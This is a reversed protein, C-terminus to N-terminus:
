HHPTESFPSMKKKRIGVRILNGEIDFKFSILSLIMENETPISNFDAEITYVILEQSLMRKKAENIYKPDKKVCLLSDIKYWKNYHPEKHIEKKEPRFKLKSLNLKPPLNLSDRKQTLWDKAIKKCKKKIKRKQKNIVRYENDCLYQAQIGITFFLIFFLLLVRKNM